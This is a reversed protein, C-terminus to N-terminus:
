VSLEEQIAQHVSRCMSQHDYFLSNATSQFLGAFCFIFEKSVVCPTLEVGLPLFPEQRRLAEVTRYISEQTM